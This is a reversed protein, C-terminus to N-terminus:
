RGNQGRGLHEHRGDARRRGRPRARPTFSCATATASSIRSLPLAAVVQEGPECLVLAETEVGGVQVRQDRLRQREGARRHLLHASDAGADLLDHPPV